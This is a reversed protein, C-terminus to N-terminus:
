CARGSNPQQSLRWSGRRRILLLTLLALLSAWTASGGGGPPPPITAPADDDDSIFITPSETILQVDGGPNALAVGFTETNEHIEDDLISVTITRQGDEGSAWDLQGTAATFDRGATAADTQCEHYGCYYHVGRPFTAYEASVAGDSGAVREIVAPVTDASESVGLSTTVFRLFGPSPSDNSLLRHISDSEYGAVFLPAGDSQVAVLNFNVNLCTLGNRGFSTDPVGDISLRAIGACAPNKNADWLSLQVVIHGGDPDLLLHEISEPSYSEGLLVMGLDVTVSGSGTGYDLDPQGNRDFKMLVTERLSEAAESLGFILVGGDPLTLGRALGVGSVVLRGDVGFATDIAGAADVAVITNGDGVIISGDARAAFVPAGNCIDLEPIQTLGGNGFASDPQGDALLRQLRATYECSEDPNWTGQAVIIRGDPDVALSAARAPTVAPEVMGDGRGGFSLVPQGDDDLRLLERGSIGSRSGWFILDGNPALVAAEPAFAAWIASLPDFQVVGDAGFTPVSNGNADVMRVRFGLEAIDAIVLRDGSLALVAGPVAAVRGAEGYNADIDGRGAWAATCALASVGLTFSRLLEM